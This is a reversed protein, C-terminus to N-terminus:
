PALRWRLRALVSHQSQGLKSFQLMVCVAPPCSSKLAKLRLARGLKCAQMELMSADCRVQQESLNISSPDVSPYAILYASEIAAIGARLLSPLSGPLAAAARMRAGEHAHM